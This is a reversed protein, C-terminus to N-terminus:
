IRHKISNISIRSNDEFEVVHIITGVPIEKIDDIYITSQGNPITIDKTYIPNGSSNYMKYTASVKEEIQSNFEINISNSTIPNPYVDAEIYESITNDIKIGNTFEIPTYVVEGNDFEFRVFYLGPPSDISKSSLIEKISYEDGSVDITIDTEGGNGNGGNGGSGGNDDNPIKFIYRSMRAGEFKVKLNPSNKICNKFDKFAKFPSKTWDTADICRYFDSSSAGISILGGPNYDSVLSNCELEPCDGEGYGPAYDRMLRIAYQIDGTSYIPSLIPTQYGCATYGGSTKQLGFVVRGRVVQGYYGRFNDGTDVNEIKILKGLADDEDAAIESPGTNGNYAGMHYLMHYGRLARYKEYTNTLANWDDITLYVYHPIFYNHTSTHVEIGTGYHGITLYGAGTTNGSNDMKNHFIIKWAYNYGNCYWCHESNYHPANPPENLPIEEKSIIMYNEDYGTIEMVYGFGESDSLFFEEPLRIYNEDTLEKTYVTDFVLQENEDYHGAIIKISVKELDPYLNKDPIVYGRTYCPHRMILSGEKEDLFTQGLSDTSLAPLLVLCCFATKMLFLLKKM